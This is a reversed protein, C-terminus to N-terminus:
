QGPEGNANKIRAHLRALGERLLQSLMLLSMGSLIGAVGGVEALFSAWSLAPVEQFADHTPRGMTVTVKTRESIKLKRDTVKANVLYSYSKCELPCEARCMEKVATYNDVKSAIKDLYKPFKSYATGNCYDGSFSTTFPLGCKQQQIIAKLLCQEVCNYTSSTGGQCGLYSRQLRTIETLITTLMYHQGISSIYLPVKFINDNFLPKDQPAHIKVLNHPSLIGNITWMMMNFMSPRKKFKFKYYYSNIYLKVDSVDDKDDPPVFRYCQNLSTTVPVWHPDSTGTLQTHGSITYSHLIDSLNWSSKKWIDPVSYNELGPFSNMMGLLNTACSSDDAYLGKGCLDEIHLNMGLSELSTMNFPPWRCLTIGPFDKWTHPEDSYKTYIKPNVFFDQLRNLSLVFLTASMFLWWSIRFLKFLHSITKAGVPPVHKFVNRVMWMLCSMLDLLSVGLYLGLIGGIECLYTSISTMLQEELELNSSHQQTLRITTGDNGYENILTIPKLSYHVKNCEAVCKAQCEKGAKNKEVYNGKISRKYQDSTKCLPLTSDSLYPLRCGVNKANDELLCLDVCKKRSYPEELCPSRPKSIRKSTTTKIELGLQMLEKNTYTIAFDGLSLPTSQVPHLLFTVDYYYSKLIYFFDLMDFEYFIYHFRDVLAIDLLVTEKDSQKPSLTFCNGSTTITNSLNGSNIINDYIFYKITANYLRKLNWMYEITINSEWLGPLSNMLFPIVVNRDCEKHRQCDEYVSSNIPIELGYQILSKLNFPVDPCLTVGPFPPQSRMLNTVFVTPYELYSVTLQIFHITFAMFFLCAGCLLWVTKLCSWSTGRPNSAQNLFDNGTSSGDDSSKSRSSIVANLIRQVGHCLTLLSAGFCLGLSGGLDALFKAMSYMKEETVSETYPASPRLLFATNKVTENLYYDVFASTAFGYQTFRCSLKCSKRCIVFLEDNEAALIITLLRRRFQLFQRIHSKNPLHSLESISLIDFEKLLEKEFCLSMCKSFMYDADSICDSSELMHIERVSFWTVINLETLVTTHIEIVNSSDLIAPPEHPSHLIILLDGFEMDLFYSMTEESCSSNCMEGIKQCSVELFTTKGLLRSCPTQSKLKFSLLKNSQGEELAPPVFTWCPGLSTMSVRWRSRANSPPQYAVEVEDLFATEVYSSLPLRSADWLEQLTLDDPLSEAEELATICEKRTKCTTNFGMRTLAEAPFPKSPCLTVAPLKPPNDDLLMFSSATPHALFQSFLTYAHLCFVLAVAATFASHWHRWRYTEEVIGM